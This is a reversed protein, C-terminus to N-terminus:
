FGIAWWGVPSTTGGSNVVNMGTTTLNNIHAASELSSTGNQRTAFGVFATTTFATDFTVATQTNSITATVGWNLILDNGTSNPLQLSGNIVNNVVIDSLVSGLADATDVYGKTVLHTPGTGEAGLAVTADTALSLAALGNAFVIFPHASTTGVHANTAHAQLHATVGGSEAITVLETVLNNATVTVLDDFIATTTTLDLNDHGAINIDIPGSTTPIDVTTTGFDMTHVEVVPLRAKTLAM